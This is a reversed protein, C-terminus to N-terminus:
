YWLYPPPTVDRVGRLTGSWMGPMTDAKPTESPVPIEGVHVEAGHGGGVSDGTISKYPM